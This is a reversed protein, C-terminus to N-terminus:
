GPSSINGVDLIILSRDDEFDRFSGKWEMVRDDLAKIFQSQPGHRYNILTEIFRHDGFLEGATNRCEIYGDTSFVLRNNPALNIDCVGFGEFPRWGLIVGKPSYQQVIGTEHDIVCLPQHGANAYRATMTTLDLYLYGATVFQSGIKGILMENMGTLVKRPDRLERIQEQFSIKIVSSIMAAPIGHGSADAILIGYEGPEGSIFDYYDGGIVRAPNYSVVISVRGTQPISKPLLSEQIKRGLEMEQKITLLQQRSEEQDIRMRNIRDALGLSFLIIEAASGAQVGYLTFNNAPLVSLNKLLFLVLGIIFFGWGGMFYYAPRYGRRIASIGATMFLIIGSAPLINSVHTMVTQNVFFALIVCLAGVAMFGKMVRGLAPWYKDVILYNRSFQMALTFSLLVFVVNAIHNWHPSGPWLYEFSLGNFSIQFLGFSATYLVYYLYSRDRLSYFIFLNYLIMVLIIGFYTGQILQGNYASRLFAERQWLVPPFLMTKEVSVACYVTLPIGPRLPLLFSPNRYKIERETYPIAEGAMSVEWRDTGPTYLEVRELSPYAVELIWEITKGPLDRSYLLSTRFWYRGNVTGHNFSDGNVPKFRSAMGPSSVDDITLAGSDDKMYDTYRGLTRREDSDTVVLPTGALVRAPASLEMAICVLTISILNKIMM